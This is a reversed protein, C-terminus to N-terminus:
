TQELGEKIYGLISIELNDESIPKSTLFTTIKELFTTIDVQNCIINLMEDELQFARDEYIKSEDEKGDRSKQDSIRWMNAMRKLLYMIGDLDHDTEM